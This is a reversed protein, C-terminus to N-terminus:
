NVKANEAEYPERILQCDLEWASQFVQGCPIFIGDSNHEVPVLRAFEDLIPSILRFAVKDYVDNFLVIDGIEMEKLKKKEIVVEKKVETLLAPFIIDKNNEGSIAHGAETYSGIYYGTDMSYADFFVSGEKREIRINTGRHTRYIKGNELKNCLM